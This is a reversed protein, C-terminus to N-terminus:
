ELSQGQELWVTSMSHAARKKTQKALTYYEHWGNGWKLGLFCSNRQLDYYSNDWDHPVLCMLQSILSAHYPLSIIGLLSSMCCLYSQYVIHSTYQFSSVSYMFSWWSAMDVKFPQQLSFEELLCSKLSYLIHMDKWKALIVSWQNVCVEVFHSTAASLMVNCIYVVLVEEFRYIVFNNIKAKWFIDM